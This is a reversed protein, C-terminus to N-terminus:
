LIPISAYTMSSPSLLSATTICRHFVLSSCRRIQGGTRSCYLRLIVSRVSCLNCPIPYTGCLKWPINCTFGMCGHATVANRLDLSESCPPITNELSYSPTVGGGSVDVCAVHVGVKLSAICSWLWCALLRNTSTLFM